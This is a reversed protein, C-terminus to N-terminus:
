LTYEMNSAPMYALTSTLKEIIKQNARPFALRHMENPTVWRMPRGDTTCPTGKVPKCHFAHLTMRFHSYTHKVEGIKPGVEVDIGLEKKLERKCAEAPSEHEEVKGGPFEWLGGLMADEPRRTILIRGETDYLIGIAVHIHPIPATKKKVPYATPTGEHYAKCVPQLPCSTCAPQTPTCVMAGLEMLAQNFDGPRHEPLLTGALDQLKQRTAQRSVDERIGFARTLVRIVNGDVAAIPYQYAISLVAALTYPGVGPLKSLAEPDSPISGGHREVIIRAAQHLYHARRYYGLGEWAKLVDDISARALTHVDPFRRIFREFYPRVQDVRTQQLMIEAVWILYPDPTDRWPMERRHADFWALLDKQFYPRQEV